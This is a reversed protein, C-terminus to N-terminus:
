SEVTLAQHRAQLNHFFRLASSLAFVCFPGRHLLNLASCQNSSSFPLGQLYDIGVDHDLYKSASRNGIKTFISIHDLEHQRIPGTYDARDLM